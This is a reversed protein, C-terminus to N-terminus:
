LTRMDEEGCGSREKGGVVFISVTRRPPPNGNVIGDIRFGVFSTAKAVEVHTAMYM